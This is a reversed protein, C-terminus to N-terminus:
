IYAKYIKTQGTTGKRKAMTNDTRWRAMFQCNKHHYANIACITTFGVVM